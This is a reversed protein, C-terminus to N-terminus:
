SVCMGLYAEAGDRWTEHLSRGDRGTVAIDPLYDASNFGTAYVMVDLKQLTGDALRVGDPEFRDIATTEVHCNRHQLAPYWENSFATRKCGLTFGPTLKGRLEADPVAQELLRLFHQRAEELAEMDSRRRAIWEFEEFIRTREGDL